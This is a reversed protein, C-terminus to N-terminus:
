TLTFPISVSASKSRIPFSAPNFIFVTRCGSAVRPRAAFKQYSTRIRSELFSSNRRTNIFSICGTSFNIRIPNPLKVTSPKGRPLYRNNFGFSTSSNRFLTLGCFFDSNASSLPFSCKVCLEFFGCLVVLLARSVDPQHARPSGVHLVVTYHFHVRSIRTPNGGINLIHRFQNFRPTASIKRPRGRQLLDFTLPRQGPKQHDELPRRFLTRHSEIRALIVPRIAFASKRSCLILEQQRRALVDRSHRVNALLAPVLVSERLTAFWQFIAASLNCFIIDALPTADRRLASSIIKAPRTVRLPLTTTSNPVFASASCSTM